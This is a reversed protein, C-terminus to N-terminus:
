PSLVHHSFESLSLMGDGNSDLRAMLRAVEAAEEGLRQTAVASGQVYSRGTLPLQQVVAGLEALSISGDGNTDFM